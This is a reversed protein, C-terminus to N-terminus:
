EGRAGDAEAARLAGSGETASRARASKSASSAARPCGALGGISIGFVGLWGLIGVDVLRVVVGLLGVVLLGVPIRDDGLCVDRGCLPEAHRVLLDVAEV